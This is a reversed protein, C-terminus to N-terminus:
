MPLFSKENSGEQLMGTISRYKRYGARDSGVEIVNGLPEKVAGKVYIAGSVLSIGMRTDVNGDVIISGVKLSGGKGGFFKLDVGLSSGTSIM